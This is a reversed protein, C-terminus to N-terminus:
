HLVIIKKTEVLEGNSIINLFYNGNSFHSVDFSNKGNLIIKSDVTEGNKNLMHLELKSGFVNEVNLTVASPNPYIRTINKYTDEMGVTCTINVDVSDIIVTPQNSADLIYYRIEATGAGNSFNLTPKMTSSDGVNLITSAPSTWDSGFCPYCLNNDCFQDSFNVTSNLIVRRFMIEQTSTGTNECHMYVDFSGVDKLINITSSNYTNGPDEDWYISIQANSVGILLVSLFSTLIFNKM